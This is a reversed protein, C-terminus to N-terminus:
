LVDFKKSRKKTDIVVPTVEKEEVPTIYGCDLLVKYNPYSEATPGAIISGRKLFTSGAQFALQVKYRNAM